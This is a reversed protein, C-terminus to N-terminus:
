RPLSKLRNLISIRFQHLQVKPYRKKEAAVVDLLLNFDGISDSAQILDM